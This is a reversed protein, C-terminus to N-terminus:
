SRGRLRYERDDITVRLEQEPGCVVYAENGTPPRVVPQPARTAADEASVIPGDGDLWRIVVHQEVGADRQALQWGATPHTDLLILAAPLTAMSAAAQLGSTEFGGHADLVHTRQQPMRVLNLVGRMSDAALMDDLWPPTTEDPPEDALTDAEASAIVAWVEAAGGTHGLSKHLRAAFRRLEASPKAWLRATKMAYDRADSARQSWGAAELACLSLDLDYMADFVAEPEEDALASALADTLAIDDLASLTTPIYETFRSIRDEAARIRAALIPDDVVTALRRAQGLTGLLDFVAVADAGAEPGSADALAAELDELVRQQTSDLPPSKM